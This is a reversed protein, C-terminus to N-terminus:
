FEFPQQMKQRVPLGNLMAPKFKWTSLAERVSEEFGYAGPTELFQIDAVTGNEDVTIITEVRGRIGNKQAEKPYAPNRGSIFIIDSDTEGEEYAMAGGAGGAMAISAGGGAGGGPSLDMALNQRAMNQPARKTQQKQKPTERKKPPQKKKPPPKAAMHVPRAETKTKLSPDMGMYNTVPIALFIVFSVAIALIMSIISVFIKM